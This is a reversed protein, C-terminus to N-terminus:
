VEPPELIVGLFHRGAVFAPDAKGIVLIEFFSVDEFGIFYHLLLAMERLPLFVARNEPTSKTEKTTRPLLLTFSLRLTVFDRMSRIRPRHFTETMSRPGSPLLASTKRPIEATADPAAMASSLSSATKEKRHPSSSDPSNEM